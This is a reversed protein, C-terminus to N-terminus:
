RKVTTINIGRLNDKEESRVFVCTFLGVLSESHIKVYTCDHPTAHRVAQTLKDLWHRYASSIKDATSNMEKNKGGFLLTELGFILKGNICDLPFSSM